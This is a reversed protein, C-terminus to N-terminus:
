LIQWSGDPQQCARGYASEEAGDIIISQRYERCYRGSSSYGDRTAVVSGEHGNKPNQWRVMHGLAAAHAEQNAQHMYAVDTKDLVFAVDADALTGFLVAEASSVHRASLRGSSAEVGSVSAGGFLGYSDLTECAALAFISLGACILTLYRM